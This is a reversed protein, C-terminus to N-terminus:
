SASASPRAPQCAPCYVTARQALRIGKLITGCRVCPEGARGYVLHSGQYSGPEGDGSIWDRLTSGRGEIARALVARIHGALTQIEISSLTRCRRTPRIGSLFLAEDAYINGVGAVVFQDLLASKIARTSGSIAAALEDGQIVLGDPGLDSWRSARLTDLSPFTWLGGFRRPDRFILRSGDDLTWRAHIHSPQPPGRGPALHFLQGSMGLHVLLLSGEGVIALQKGHRQLLTIRQGELLVAPSPSPGDHTQCIDIRYLEARRVARAILHPELTRRVTEVEPLEPM